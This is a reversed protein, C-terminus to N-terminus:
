PRVVTLLDAKHFHVENGGIIASGHIEQADFNILLTVYDGYGQEFWSAFYRNNDVQMAQYPFPGWWREPKSGTLYRYSVGEVAFKVHYSRGSTYMYRIETGDLARTTEPESAQASGACAIFFCYLSFYLTSANSLMKM